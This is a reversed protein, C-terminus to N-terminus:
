LGVIPTGKKLMNISKPPNPINRAFISRPTLTLGCVWSLRLEICFTWFHANKPTNRKHFSFSSKGGGNRKRVWVVEELFLNIYMTIGTLSRRLLRFPYDTGSPVGSRDTPFVGANGRAYAFPGSSRLQIGLPVNSQSCALM